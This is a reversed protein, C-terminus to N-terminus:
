PARSSAGRGAGRRSPGGRRASSTRRPPGPPESIGGPATEDATYRVGVLLKEGVRARIAALSDNGGYALVLDARNLLATERAEDGGKWWVIALCDALKPDIEALLEAFWAKGVGSSGCTPVGGLSLVHQIQWCDAFSPSAQNVVLLQM